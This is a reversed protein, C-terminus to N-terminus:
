CLELVVAGIELFLDLISLNGCLGFSALSGYKALFCLLGGFLIFLLHRRYADLMCLLTLFLESLKLAHLILLFLERRIIAEQLM